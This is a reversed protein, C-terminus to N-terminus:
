KEEELIKANIHKLIKEMKEIMVDNGLQKQIALSNSYMRRAIKLRKILESEEGSLTMYTVSGFDKEFQEITMAHSILNEFQSKNAIRKGSKTRM